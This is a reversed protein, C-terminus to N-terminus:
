LPLDIIITTGRGKFSDITFTGGMQEAKKEINALGMGEKKNINKPNFGKGNDEIIINLSKKHQTLQITIESAEAHKIANTLIEQIMRFISVELTNELREDLGFPIVIVQLKNPITIKKAINQVAPVLGENGIVGANKTHAIGRVKQYAEDLLADTKDYLQDDVVANNGKQLKLNQFNLKLTAMLSGLNDHLDNALKIREKEQGELLIDIEHLEHEKLVNELKQIQILKDQEAIKKKRRLNQYGLIFLILLVILLVIVMGGKKLTNKLTSIEHKNEKTQYKADIDRIAKVQEEGNAINQYVQLKDTYEVAKKYDKIEKFTEVMFGYLLIKHNTQYNKIPLADAKYYMTLAENYKKEKRLISAENIYIYAIFETLNHKKYYQLALANYKQATKYQHLDEAYILGINQNFKAEFFSDKIKISELKGKQYYEISKLPEKEFLNNGIEKYTTCLLPVNNKEKAYGIAEDLLYKYDKYQYDSLRKIEAITLNIEIIKDYDKQTKYADKAKLFYDLAYNGKGNLYYTQGYLYYFLGKDTAALQSKSIKKLGQIRTNFNLNDFNAKFTKLEKNQAVVFVTIFFLIVTKILAQNNKNIM